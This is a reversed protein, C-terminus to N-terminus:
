ASNEAVGGVATGDKKVLVRARGPNAWDKPHTKGPEFVVSLGLKGCADVVDQALPNQVALEKSVRRGQAKTRGADFYVPYLCQWAKSRALADRSIADSAPPNRNSPTPATPTLSTNSSNLGLIPNSNTSSTPPGLSDIDMEEPDSDSDSLEEVRATRSM